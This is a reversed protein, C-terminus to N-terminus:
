EDRQIFVGLRLQEDEQQNLDRWLLLDINVVETPGFDRRSYGIGQKLYDELLRENNTSIVRGMPPRDFNFPTDIDSLLQTGPRVNMRGSIFLDVIESPLEFSMSLHHGLYEEDAVENRVFSNMRRLIPYPLTMGHGNPFIRRSLKALLGYSMLGGVLFSAGAMQLDGTALNQGTWGMMIISMPFLQLFDDSDFRAFGRRDSYNEYVFESSSMSGLIGRIKSEENTVMYRMGPLNEADMLETFRNISYESNRIRLNAPGDVRLTNMLDSNYEVASRLSALM